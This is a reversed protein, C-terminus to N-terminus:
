RRGPPTACAFRAPPRHTPASRRRAAEKEWAAVHRAFALETLPEGMRAELAARLAAGDFRAPDPYKKVAQRQVFLRKCAHIPDLTATERALAQTEAEIGFLAAVFSDLHPGLAVVLDSEDKKALADPAARAALLRAHLGADEAALRDLFARDLRILGDRGGPRRLRVRLRAAARRRDGCGASPRRRPPTWAHLTWALPM